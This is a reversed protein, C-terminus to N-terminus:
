APAAQDFVTALGETLWTLGAPAPVGPDRRSLWEVMTVADARVQLAGEPAPGAQVHVVDDRAAVVLHDEPDDVAVVMARPDDDGRSVAFARGLGVSYRLCRRVEDADVVPTRGLPLLIDREHVWADWLAHDAVLRIPLHGPPAEALTDWGTDGVQAMAAELADNGDAFRQLTDAVPTGQAHDVLQAPTAVPDFGALYRTPEGGLGAQISLGWFGNTSALHTIVDQVSWGECRSPQEWEAASLERLTHELRRRQRVIPHEGADWVEVSLIPRDGYRPTLQM